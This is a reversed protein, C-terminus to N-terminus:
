LLLKLKFINFSYKHPDYKAYQRWDKPNSNYNELLKTVYDVNVNDKAFVRHLHACLEKLDKSVPVNELDLKVDERNITTNEHINSIIESM